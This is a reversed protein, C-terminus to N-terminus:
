RYGGAQATNPVGCNQGENRLIIPQAQSRGSLHGAFRRGVWMGACLGLLAFVAVVGEPFSWADAVAAAILLSILPLAYGLLAAQTVRAGSIGIVVTDGVQIPHAGVSPIPLSVRRRRLLRMMLGAGCGQGAACRACNAPNGERVWIQDATIREVVVRAELM